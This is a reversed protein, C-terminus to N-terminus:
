SHGIARHLGIYGIYKYIARHFSFMMDPEQCCCSFKGKRLTLTYDGPTAAADRVLFTGDPTDRLIDTVEDRSINGWYWDETPPDVELIRPLPQPPLAPLPM